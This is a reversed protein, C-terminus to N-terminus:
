KTATMWDIINDLKSERKVGILKRISTDRESPNYEKITDNFKDLFDSLMEKKKTLNGREPVTDLVLQNVGDVTQIHGIAFRTKLAKLQDSEVTRKYMIKTTCLGCESAWEDFKLNSTVIFYSGAWTTNNSNRRYARCIYDDAMVLPQKCSDDDIIIAQHSPKLKDFRGTGEGGCVLTDLGELAKRTAYTKGTNGEGYIFVSLRVIEKNENIRADIGLEYSERITKMKSHSRVQFDQRKYWETFDGLEYGLEYAKKDLEILDDITAKGEVSVRTYGKRVQKIEDIKLNSVIEELNYLAKGEEIAKKTEHTLYTAYSSFDGVTEVGGNLWLNDDIGQRYTVGIKKLLAGLRFRGKRESCRIILHYHPKELPSEWIGDSEIDRNHCIMLIQYRKPSCEHITETLADIGGPIQEEYFKLSVSYCTSALALTKKGKSQKKRAPQQISTKSLSTKCSSTDGPLPVEKQLVKKQGENM